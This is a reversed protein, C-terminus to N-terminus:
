NIGDYYYAVRRKGEASTGSIIASGGVGFGTVTVDQTSNVSM